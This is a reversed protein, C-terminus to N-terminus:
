RWILSLTIPLFDPCVIEIGTQTTMKRSDTGRKATCLSNRQMAANDLLFLLTLDCSSAATIPKLEQDAEIGPM